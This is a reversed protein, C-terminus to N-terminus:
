NGTRPRRLLLLATLVLLVAGLILVANFGYGADFLGGAVLPGIIQGLAFAATMAAVLRASDGHASERAVQLSAMTTVVFTGGVLLASVIIAALGSFFVPLVVGVAMLWHSAMWVRRHGVNAAQAAAILTSLLAAAGFVPWSWGFLAADPMVAKAMVPLFTAPIIYGFGSVGYCFVLLAAGSGIRKRTDPAPLAAAPMEVRGLVPLVFLAPLLALVGAIRWAWASGSDLQMLLLCILGTAAIGSGVGAYVLGTLQTRGAHALATMCRTSVAIFMLASAIGAVFRLVTWATFNQTFGMAVTSLAVALLAGALVARSRMPWVTGALAGLLYGVYNVSALWGGSGVSVAFDDQMMPLIPTFAFRGIGMAVALAVLGALAIRLPAPQLM